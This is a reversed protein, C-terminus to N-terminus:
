PHLKFLNYFHISEHANLINVTIGCFLNNNFGDIKSQLSLM